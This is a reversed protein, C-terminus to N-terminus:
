ARGAHESETLRVDAEDDRGRLVLGGVVLLAVEIVTIAIRNLVTAGLAAAPSGVALLLGYM